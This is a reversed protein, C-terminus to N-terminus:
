ATTSTVPAAANQASQSSLAAAAVLGNSLDIAFTVEIYNLPVAPAYTFSAAIITPDGTPYVEQAVVLNAYAIIVKQNIAQQLISVIAGQVTVVMTPTIPSGILGSNELGSQLAVLLADAQRVMSIERTNLAGMATTLGQRVALAGSRNQYVICAGSAALSNMFAPTMLAIEAATIGAFGPVSQGTLGTNIPLTSLLAALAVALYCGSALFTMRTLSNFAQLIEPYVVVIRSDNLTSTFATVPLSSESYDIPLGFFGVRPFGSAAASRM